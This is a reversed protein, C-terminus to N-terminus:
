KQIGWIKKLKHFEDGELLIGICNSENTPVHNVKPGVPDLSNPVIITNRLAAGIFHQM